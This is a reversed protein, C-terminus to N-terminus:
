IEVVEDVEEVEEEDAAEADVRLQRSLPSL